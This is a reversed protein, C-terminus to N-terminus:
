SHFAQQENKFCYDNHEEHDFGNAHKAMSMERPAFGDIDHHEANDHYANSMQTTM